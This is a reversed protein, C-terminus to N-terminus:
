TIMNKVVAGVGCDLLTNIRKCGRMGVLM